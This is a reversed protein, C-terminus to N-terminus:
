GVIRTSKLGNSKAAFDGWSIGINVHGKDKVKEGGSDRVSRVSEKGKKKKKKIRNRRSCNEIGDWWIHNFCKTWIPKSFFDSAVM